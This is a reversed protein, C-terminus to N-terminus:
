SRRGSKARNELMWGNVLTAATFFVLCCPVVAIAGALGFRDGAAGMLYAFIGCGPIGLASFAIYLLTPDLHPMQTVGYVQTTPWYPAIGIGAVVLLVFLVAFFWPDPMAGRRLLALLLTVPM